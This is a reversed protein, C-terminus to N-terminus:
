FNWSVGTGLSGFTEPFKNKAYTGDGLTGPRGSDQTSVEWGFKLFRRVDHTACGAAVWRLAREQDASHAVTFIAFFMLVPRERRYIAVLAVVGAAVASAAASILPVALRVYNGPLSVTRMLAFFVAMLVVFAALLRM